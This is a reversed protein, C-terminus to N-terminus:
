ADDKLSKDQNLINRVYLQLKGEHIFYKACATALKNALTISQISPPAIPYIMQLMVQLTEADESVPIVPLPASDEKKTNETSDSQPPPMDFMDRFVCSAMGLIARLVKFEAGESAQIICDGVSDADFPPQVLFPSTSPTSM